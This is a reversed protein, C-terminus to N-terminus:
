KSLAATYRAIEGPLVVMHEFTGDMRRMAFEANLTRHVVIRMRELASSVLSEPHFPCGAELLAPLNDYTEFYVMAATPGMYAFRDNIGGYNGWWPIYAACPPYYREKKTAGYGHPVLAEYTLDPEEFQHFHLDPRCRVVMGYEKTFDPKHELVFKWARSHHWLQRLIGQFPGVGPTKTPTIAYPAYDAFSADPESLVPPKVREIHVEPYDKRLLEMAPANEDDEVSVFFVPNELKRFVHWKLNPYTRAFSRAQGDIICATKM